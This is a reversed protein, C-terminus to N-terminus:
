KVRGITGKSKQALRESLEEASREASLRERREKQIREVMLDLLKRQIEILKEREDLRKDITRKTNDIWQSEIGAALCVEKLEGIRDIVPEDLAKDISKLMKVVGKSKDTANGKAPTQSRANPVRMKADKPALKTIEPTKSKSVTKPAKSDSDPASKLASSKSVIQLKDAKKEVTKTIKQTAELLQEHKSEPAKMSRFNDTDDKIKSKDVIPLILKSPEKLARKMNASKGSNASSKTMKKADTKQANVSENM